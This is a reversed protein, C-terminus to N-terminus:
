TNTEFEVFLLGLAQDMSPLSVYAVSFVRPWLSKSRCLMVLTSLVRHHSTTVVTPSLTPLVLGKSFRGAKVRIGAPFERNNAAKIPGPRPGLM